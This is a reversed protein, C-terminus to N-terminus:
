GNSELATAPLEPALLTRASEALARRLLREALLKSLIIGKLAILEQDSGLRRAATEAVNHCAWGSRDSVQGCAPHALNTKVVLLDAEDPRAQEEVTAYPDGPAGEVFVHELHLPGVAVAVPPSANPDAHERGHMPLNFVSQAATDDGVLRLREEEIRARIKLDLMGAHALARSQALVPEITQSVWSELEIWASTERIFDTKLNNTDFEDLHIEGVVRATSPHPQFGLKEHRRVIRRHRILGFGYWGRQSSKYLLGAWGWVRRGDVIGEFPMVSEPDIEYEAPAVAVGNVRLRVIGDLLFHRFTWGLNRVLSQHLSGYLRSSKIVVSTGRPRTKKRKRVPLKWEGTMLFQEQDYEAIWEVQGHAPATTITFSDGLSSCATKMGLGFKGIDADGKESLALVLADSLERKSMGAGDDDVRLWGEAVNYSIDVKVVRKGIRADIANDVLEAVAEAVSHGSQGIKALLSVDPTIDVLTAM